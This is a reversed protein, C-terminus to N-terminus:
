GDLAEIAAAFDFESLARRLEALRQAGISKALAAALDEVRRAARTSQGDILARLEDRDQPDLPTADPRAADDARLAAIRRREQELIPAASRAILDLGIALAQRMSQWDVPGPQGLLDELEVAARAVGLAGVIRAGSKLKHLRPPLDERSTTAIDAYEELLRQLMSLVLPRDRRLSATIASEDIGEIPLASTSTAAAAVTRAVVAVPQGRHREVHRRLCQILRRPDFPKPLFDTMGAALARDREDRLVGATLAIVPLDALGPQLRLRRATETGDMTPMQVDLVIADFAAPLDQLLKLAEQGSDCTTVNAGELELVKRAVDLNITSDDVVLINLGQLWLFSGRDDVDSALLRDGAGALVALSRNIVNFLASGDVPKSLLATALGAHPASRLDETDYQSLVIVAPPWQAAPLREHLRALASLGDLDPLAWDVVLADFPRGQAAAALVTEVLAEGGEVARCRWGLSRALRVLEERQIADDEAMLLRLPQDISADWDAQTSTAAPLPLTLTFTSGLGPASSLGITGGMREVLKATIALGLGTGGYRRTTSSDAQEFPRFLRSQAQPAIGIGTDSVEFVLMPEDKGRWVRLQVQGRETFKLANGLLNGLIQRLRVIDGRVFGPVDDDIVVATKLAKDRVAAALLAMEGEVLARLDFEAEELEIQGAEIKSLDLVDNILALLSQGAQAIRQVPERVEAPLQTRELLYTLGLIANLPTRIEHSTSALFDSKARSASEAVELAQLMREESRRAADRAQRLETVDYLWALEAAEGHYDVVRYSGLAWVHPAAPQDPVHLEVLRDDIVEGEALRRRIDAFESANVYLRAIDVALAAERARDVLRCYRDNVLHVQQDRLSAVRVAVPAAELLEQTLAQERELALKAEHQASIDQHTGVIRVARDGDFVPEGLTRVWIRAGDVRVGPLELDWGRREHVAREHAEALRSRAEPAFFGIAEDMTPRHGTPMGFIRCTEDSWGIEGDALDIEFGGVHAMASTRALMAESRRLAQEILKLQTIEFRVSVYREIRGAADVLPVIISSVWYPSGDKARNCIEGRWAYGGAITQWMQHWFEPPHVASNVIRHNQGVLEERAYKSVACFADNASIIVGRRDTITVLAFRNLADLLSKQERQVNALALRSEVTESIDHVLAYFGVVEGNQLQPVYNTVLHRSGRGHARPLEREFRQPEGRLVADIYPQNQAFLEPTLVDHLTVGVLDEPERGLVQALARNAFRNRLQTDWSGIMAPMADLVALLDQSVQAVQRTREAVQRELQEGHAKLRNLQALREHVPRLLKVIGTLRQDADYVPGAALEVDVSTGDRHRYRTEFRATVRGEAADRLLREDEISLEPTLCLEALPRHLAEDAAFGLLREAARNWLNVRGHLDLGVVADGAHDLMSLLQQRQALNARTRVRLRTWAHALLALLGTAGAGEAWVRLPSRGGLAEALATKPTVSFRWRRGFVIRELVVPAGASARAPEAPQTALFEPQRADTVDALSVSVRDPWPNAAGLLEGMSIPAFVWGASGAGTGFGPPGGSVPLRLLLLVGVSAAPSSAEQRVPSSLVPADSVLAAESAARQNPDSAIDQGLLSRAIAEPEAFEIVRRELDNPGLSRIAFDARGTRRLEALYDREAQPAVRRIFGFGAVGPFESVLERGAVYARFREATLADGAGVVFGRAGRLGSGAREILAVAGRSAEEALRRTEAQIAQAQVRHHYWAAAASLLLGAVLVAPGVSREASTIM